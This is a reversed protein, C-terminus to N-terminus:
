NCKGDTNSIVDNKLFLKVDQLLTEFIENEKKSEVMDASQYVSEVSGVSENEDDGIRQGYLGNYYSFTRSNNQLQQQQENQKDRGTMNGEVSPVRDIDRMPHAYIWSATDVAEADNSMRM